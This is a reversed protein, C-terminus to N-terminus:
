RPQSVTKGRRSGIGSRMRRPAGSGRHELPPPLDFTVVEEALISIAMDADGRRIAAEQDRLLQLIQGKDDTM